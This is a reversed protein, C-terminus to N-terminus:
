DETIAIIEGTQMEKDRLAEYTSSLTADTVERAMRRTYLKLKGDPQMLAFAGEKLLQSSVAKESPTYIGAKMDNEEKNAPQVSQVPKNNKPNMATGVLNLMGCWPCPDIAVGKPNRVEYHVHEAQRDYAANGTKGMVAIPQGATVRQGERVLLSNAKCHAFIHSYGSDDVIWVFYGWEWTNGWGAAGKQVVRAYKVRGGVTSHVTPNGKTDIDLGGHNRGSAAGFVGYQVEVQNDEAFMMCIFRPDFAYTLPGNKTQYTWNKQPTM